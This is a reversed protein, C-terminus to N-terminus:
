FKLKIVMFEFNKTLIVGMTLFSSLPRLIYSSMDAKSIRRNSVEFFHLTMTYFSCIVRYWAYRFFALYDKLLYFRCTKM